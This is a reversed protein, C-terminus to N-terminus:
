GRAVKAPYWKQFWATFVGMAAPCVSNILGTYSLLSTQMLFYTWIPTLLYLVGWCLTLIRNTRIFLPNQYAEDGGYGTKSYHATLPIPRLCSLTWMLGFMLYSLCILLAMDANGYLVLGCAALSLAGVCLSSIAEYPTLEWKMGALPICAVALIGIGAGLLPDIPLFVWLACWLLIMVSMNTKKEPRAAKGNEQGEEAPSATGFMKDLSLMVDFNGLTRYKREMMAQAGNVKGMSIDMWLDYPTEIRTTYTEFGDEARKMRCRGDRAALQYTEELDTFYFELVLDKGYVAPNYVAAMQRMLKAAKSQTKGGARGASDKGNAADADPGKGGEANDPRMRGSGATGAPEAIDWSADAMEVFAEPPYLLEELKRQTRDSVTGGSMWEYGAAEVSKLYEDCRVKLQPQAFLEGEPCLIKLLNDGYLTEFQKELADYNHERAYFGCTSLLVYRKGTMDYRSPHGCAEGDESVAMFPLNTPLLRDMLAKIRSPMGYYYLPFSWVIVDAELYAQLIQGMDDSIVCKGPTKTWCCFCGLCDKINKQYVPVTEIECDRSRQMGKLFANTLQLTNSGEGRPSGNLVLVKM